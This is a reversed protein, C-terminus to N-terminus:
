KVKFKTIITKGNLIMPPDKESDFIGNGDDGHLEASYTQGTKLEIPITFNQTEPFIILNGNSVIKGNKDKIVVFGKGPMVIKAITLKDGAPVVADIEIKAESSFKIPNITPTNTVPQKVENTQPAPPTTPKKQLLILGGALIVVILVVFVIYQKKM